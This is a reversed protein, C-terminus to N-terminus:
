YSMTLQKSNEVAPPRKLKLHAWSEGLAYFDEKHKGCSKEGKRSLVQETSSVSNDLHLSEGKCLQKRTLARVKARLPDEDRTHYRETERKSIETDNNKVWEKAVHPHADPDAHHAGPQPAVEPRLALGDTVVDATKMFVAHVIVSVPVLVPRWTGQRFM